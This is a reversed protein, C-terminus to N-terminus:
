GDEDADERGSRTLDVVHVTSAEPESGWAAYLANAADNDPETAVWAVDCGQARGWAAVEALLASAVGRRRHSPAVGLNEVFLEPGKSVLQLVMAACQGVTRGGDVAIVLLHGEAEVVATLRAPSPDEDFVDDLPAPIGPGDVRVIEVGASV